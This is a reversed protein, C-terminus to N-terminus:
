GGQSSINRSLWRTDVSTLGHCSSQTVIDRWAHSAGAESLASALQHLGRTIITIVWYRGWLGDGYPGGECLSWVSLEEHWTVSSNNHLTNEQQSLEQGYIWWITVWYIFAVQPPEKHTSMEMANGNYLHGRHRVPPPPVMELTIAIRWDVVM